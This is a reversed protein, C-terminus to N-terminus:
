SLVIEGEDTGNWFHIRKAHVKIMIIGPTEIGNEFWKDLDPNWHEQFTSKDDILEAKGEVAIMFKDNGQFSLSVDPDRGIEGVMHADKWTFYYSNGDYDVDRNNSMPRAAIAGNEAHTSLMTIDIKRMAASIHALKENRM